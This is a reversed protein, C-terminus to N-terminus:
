GTPNARFRPFFAQRLSAAFPFRLPGALAPPRRVINDNSLRRRAPPCGILLLFEGGYNDGAGGRHFRAAAIAPPASGHPGSTSECVPARRDSSCKFQIQCRLRTRIKGSAENPM